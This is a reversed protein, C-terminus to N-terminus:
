SIVGKERQLKYNSIMITMNHRTAYRQSKHIEMQWTELHVIFNTNSKRLTAMIDWQWSDIETWRQKTERENEINNSFTWIRKKEGRTWLVNAAEEENLRSIQYAIKLQSLNMFTDVEKRWLHFLSAQFYVTQKPYLTLQLVKWLKQINFNYKSATM